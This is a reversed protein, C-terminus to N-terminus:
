RKVLTWILECDEDGDNYAWHEEGSPIFTAQGASIRYKKGGSVTTLSGKIVVAYEDEEHAGTGELPIRAGPPFTAIGLTTRAGELIAENFLTKMNANARKEPEISSITVVEM